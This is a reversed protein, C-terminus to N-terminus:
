EGCGTEPDSDPDGGVLRVRTSNQVGAAAGQARAESQYTLAFVARPVRFAIVYIVGAFPKYESPAGARTDTIVIPGHKSTSSCESFAVLLADVVAECEHEHNQIMAGRVSSRAYVTAVASIGREFHKKPNAQPGRAQAVSDPRTRDREIVITTTAYERELAEPGYLVPFPFSRARLTAAVDRTFEYIM